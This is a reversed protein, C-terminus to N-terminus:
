NLQRASSPGRGSESYRVFARVLNEADKAKLQKVANYVIAHEPVNAVLANVM